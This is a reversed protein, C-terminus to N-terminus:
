CLYGGGPPRTSATTWGISRWSRLYGIQRGGGHRWLISGVAAGRAVCIQWGACSSATYLLARDLMSMDAANRYICGIDALVPTAFVADSRWASCGLPGRWGRMAWRVAKM